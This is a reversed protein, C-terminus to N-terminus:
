REDAGADATDPRAEGDFDTAASESASGRGLAPSSATLHLDLAGPNVFGPNSTGTLATDSSSCKAAQQGATGWFWVNSRYTVGPVCEWAAAPAVNAVLRVNNAAVSDGPFPQVLISQLASNNRILLNEVAYANISYFGGITSSFFNNEITVNRTRPSPPGYHTIHLNGTAECNIFRSNRVTIGDGGGIQLCETHQGAVAIRWDHFTVGDILINRPPTATSAAIQPHYNVPASPGVRGGIM